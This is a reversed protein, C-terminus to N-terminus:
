ATAVARRVPLRWPPGFLWALEHRRAALRGLVACAAIVIVSLLVGALLGRTDLGIVGFAKSAYAMVIRHMLYIYLSASGVWAIGAGLWTGAVARAFLMVSGLGLLSVGFTILPEDALAPDFYVWHAVLLFAPLALVWLHRLRAVALHLPAFSVLGLLFFPFLRVVREHFAVERWDGSSASWGYAALSVGFVLVLPLRRTAMTAMFAIALAYLFWLTKPPQVFILAVARLDGLPDGGSSLWGPASVTVLGILSWLAFLWLFGQVRAWFRREHGPAFTSRLFLGGVFFFLPMRLFILAENLPIRSGIVHWVVVLSISIGKAVDVWVARDSPRSLPPLEALTAFLRSRRQVQGVSASM